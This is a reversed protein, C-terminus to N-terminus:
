VYNDRGYFVQFKITKDCSITIKNDTIIVTIPYAIEDIIVNGITQSNTFDINRMDNMAIFSQVPYDLSAIEIVNIVGSIKTAVNTFATGYRAFEFCKGTGIIKQGRAFCSIGSQLDSPTVDCNNTDLEYHKLKLTKIPANGLFMKMPKM